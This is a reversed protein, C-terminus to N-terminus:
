RGGYKIIKFENIRFCILESTPSDSNDHSISRATSDVILIYDGPDANSEITLAAGGWAEFNLLEYDIKKNKSKTSRRNEIKLQLTIKCIGSDVDTEFNKSRIQGYFICKNM